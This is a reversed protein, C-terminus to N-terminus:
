HVTRVIPREGLQILIPDPHVSDLFVVPEIHLFEGDRLVNLVYSGFLPEYIRFEGSPDVKAEAFAAGHAAQLRVWLSEIGEPIPAIRGRVVFDRPIERDVAIAGGPGIELTPDALLTVWNEPRYVDTKGSIRGYPSVVDRRSLTYTYRGFPLRAAELGSFRNTFDHGKSDACSQVKYPVAKGFQDVVQFGLSGTREAAASVVPVIPVLLFVLLTRM